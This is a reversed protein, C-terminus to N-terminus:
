PHQTARALLDAGAGCRHHSLGRNAEDQSDAGPVGIIDTFNLTLSMIRPVTDWMDAGIIVDARLLPAITVPQPEPAAAAGVPLLAWSTAAVAFAVAACTARHGNNGFM